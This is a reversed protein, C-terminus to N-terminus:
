LCILMDVENIRLVSKKEFGETKSQM